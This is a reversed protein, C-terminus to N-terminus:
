VPARSTLSHAQKLMDFAKQNNGRHEWFGSYAEFAAGLRAPVNAESLLEIATEFSREAEAYQKRQEQVQALILLSEARQVSDGMAEAQDLSEQAARAAEEIQGERLYLMALTRQGEAMGLADQQATAIERATNLEALAQELQGAQALARGYLAHVNAIQRRNNAEDYAAVSRVMYYRASALDGKSSYSQGMLAYAHGLARPDVADKAATAAQRLYGLAEDPSLHRAEGGIRTLVAMRFVPDKVTGDEVAQLCRRYSDFALSYSQLAAYANGLEFRIREAVEHDGAREAFGLGKQAEDRADDARAQLLYGRALHWHVLAGERPMLQRAALRGLIELADKVAESRGDSLNRQADYIKIEVEDRQRDPLAERRELAPAFRPELETESLLDTLPV